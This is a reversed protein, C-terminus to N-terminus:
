SRDKGKSEDTIHGDDENGKNYCNICQSMYPGRMSTILLQGCEDCRIRHDEDM